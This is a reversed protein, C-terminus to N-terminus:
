MNLEWFDDNSKEETDNPNFTMEYVDYWNKIAKKM